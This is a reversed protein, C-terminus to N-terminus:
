EVLTSEVRISLLIIIFSIRYEANQASIFTKEKIMEGETLRKKLVFRLVKRESHSFFKM